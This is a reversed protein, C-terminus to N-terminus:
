KSSSWSRVKGITIPIVESVDVTYRYIRKSEQNNKPNFFKLIVDLSDSDMRGFSSKEVQIDDLEYGKVLADSLIQVAQFANTAAHNLARDYSTIGLNRLHYYIKELFDQLNQKLRNINLSSKDMERFSEIANNVLVNVKWGYVGRTNLVNIVPIVQGSMLTAEKGTLMGPISVKEVYDRNHEPLLQNKLISLLLRYADSAFAEEAEIAYIPTLEINLTWIVANTESLNDEFHEVIQHPDEPNADLSISEIKKPKMTQAFTDRRAETGFDYGLTGLAFVKREVNQNINSAEVSESSHKITSSEKESHVAKSKNKLVNKGDKAENRTNLAVSSANLVKKVAVEVDLKGVLYRQREGKDEIEKASVVTASQLIANFVAKANPEIGQQKQLSMLLAAIGTLIPAACSTGKELMTGGGVKAGQIQEGVVTIGQKQYIGGWNSFRFPIEQETLAGVVLVGPIAAPICLCEGKDNGGPAVILINDKICDQITKTLLEDTKGTITPTAVSIHIINAGSQRALNIARVMDLQPTSSESSMSFEIFEGKCQPSIGEVITGIQGLLVSAIFTGHLKGQAEQKKDLNEKSVWYSTNLRINAGKFCSHKLDIGGDIIAIKIKPNGLTKSRLEPMGRIELFNAM